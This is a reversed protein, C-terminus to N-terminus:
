KINTTVVPQLGTRLIDRGDKNKRDEKVVKVNERQRRKCGKKIEQARRGSRRRSM